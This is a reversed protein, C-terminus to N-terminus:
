LFGALKATSRQTWRRRPSNPMSVDSNTAGRLGAVVLVGESNMASERDHFGLGLSDVDRAAESSAMLAHDVQQLAAEVFLRVRSSDIHHVVRDLHAHGNELGANAHDLLVRPSVGIASQAWAVGM